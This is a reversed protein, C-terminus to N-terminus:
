IRVTDNKGYTNAPMRRYLFANLDGEGMKKTNNHLSTLWETMDSEKLGWSSHGALSRQGHFEVPLFVPTPLWERKWPIKRVWHNFGPIRCQLCIGLQRLRWSIFSIYIYTIYEAVLSSPLATGSLESKVQTDNIQLRSKLCHKALLGTHKQSTKQFTCALGRWRPPIFM